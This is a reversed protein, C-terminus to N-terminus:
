QPTQSEPSANESLGALANVKSFAMSFDGVADIMGHEVMEKGVLVTGCDNAMEGTLTMLRKYEDQSIRSHGCVFDVIRQQMKHLYDFTQPVGIVVGNMRIPHVTVSATPSILSYDASVALTLGISHGGGLILSVCPKKMGAIMEALALGAEVDGGATNMLLIFGKIEPDQEIMVLQPLIHEYKTVKNTPPLHMHGEIQGIISVFHIPSAPTLPMGYEKIQAGAQADQNKEAENQM